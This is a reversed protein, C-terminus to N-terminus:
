FEYSLSLSWQSENSDHFTGDVLKRDRGAQADIFLWEGIVTWPKGFAQWRTSLTLARGKDNSEAPFQVHDVAAFRELRMAYGWQGQQYSALVYTTDYHTDVGMVPPNGMASYGWMTETLLRWNEDIQWLAGFIATTTVWAYEGKYLKGDGGNNLYSLKFTLAEDPSWYGHVLYGLRHDLDRDFPKSGDDRQHAFLGEDVYYLSPLPLVEGYGSKHRGISWGRWTLQSGMSDNGVFSMAGFGFANFPKDEDSIYDFRVELGVPRIEQAIWTNLASFNNSYPSDWFADSNELSSPMFLQGLTFTLSKEQDFPVVYYGFLQVIGLEGRSGQSESTLQVHSFFGINDNSYEYSLQLKAAVDLGDDDHLRSLGAGGNIADSMSGLLTAKTSVEHEGEEDAMALTGYGTLLVLACSIALLNVRRVSM